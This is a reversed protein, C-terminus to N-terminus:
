PYEEVYFLSWTIDAEHESAGYRPRRELHGEAVIPAAYRRLVARRTRMTGPSREDPPPPLPAAGYWVDIRTVREGPRLTRQFRNGYFRVIPRYDDPPNHQVAALAAIVDREPDLQREEFLRRRRLLYRDTAKGIAKNWYSHEFGAFLQFRDEPNAPFVLETATREDGDPSAIYYRLRLYENARPPTTFMNWEQQVATIGASASTIPVLVRAANWV